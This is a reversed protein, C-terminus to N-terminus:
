HFWPPQPSPAKPLPTCFFGIIQPAEATVVLQQGVGPKPGAKLTPKPGASAPPLTFPGLAKLAPATAVQGTWDGTLVVKRALLLGTIYLPLIGPDKDAPNGTSVVAFGAADDLRWAHSSFIGVQFWERFLRVRKTDMTLALSLMWTSPMPMPAQRLSPVGDRRRAALMSEHSTFSWPRWGEPKFWDAPRPDATVPYFNGTGSATEAAALISRLEAFRALANDGYYKNMTVLAAEIPQKNGKTEWDALAQKEAAVLDAPVPKAPNVQQEAQAITLADRAWGHLSQYKLYADYAKTNKGPRTRDFLTNKATRAEDRDAMNQFHSAESMELVKLYTTSLSLNTPVYNKLYKPVQDALISLHYPDSTMIATVPFGPNALILFEGGQAPVQDATFSAALKGYIGDLLAQSPDEQALLGTAVSLGLLWGKLGRGTM